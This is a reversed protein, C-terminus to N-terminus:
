VPVRVNPMSRVVAFFMYLSDCIGFVATVTASYTGQKGCFPEPERTIHYHREKSRFQLMSCLILLFLVM